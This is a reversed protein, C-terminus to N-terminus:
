VFDEYDKDTWDPDVDEGNFSVLIESLSKALLYATDIPSGSAEAKKIAITARKVMQLCEHNTPRRLVCTNGSPLDVTVFKDMRVYIDKLSAM